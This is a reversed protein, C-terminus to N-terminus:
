HAPPTWDAPLGSRALVDAAPRREVVAGPRASVRM